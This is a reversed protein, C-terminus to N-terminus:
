KPVLGSVWLGALSPPLQPVSREQLKALAPALFPMRKADPDFEVFLQLQQKLKDLHFIVEQMMVFVDEIERYAHVLKQEVVQDLWRMYAENIIGSQVLSITVHIIGNQISIINPNQHRFGIQPALDNIIDVCAQLYFNRGKVALVFDPILATPVSCQTVEPLQRLLMIMANGASGFRSHGNMQIIPILDRLSRSFPKLYKRYIANLSDLLNLLQGFRGLQEGMLGRPYGTGDLNEHHEMVARVADSPMKPIQGLIRGGIIPHAQLQRWEDAEFATQKNLLDPHLHLMGMDHSLGAVFATYCDGDTAGTRQMILVGFCACFLAQEFVTSLQISLVTLKQRLIAFRCFVGCCNQLLGPPFEEKLLKFSPDMDFFLDIRSFLTEATFENEIAITDELPRTLKFRLIKEALRHDIEGGKTVLVQGQSNTIDATAIVTAVENVQALHRSYGDTAPETSDASAGM